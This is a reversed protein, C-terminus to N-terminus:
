FQVQLHIGNPFLAIATVREVARPGPFIFHGGIRVGSFSNPTQKIRYYNYVFGAMLEKFKFSNIFNQKCVSLSLYGMKKNRNLIAANQKKASKYRNYKNGISYLWAIQKFSSFNLIFASIVYM